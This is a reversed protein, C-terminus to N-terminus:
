AWPKGDAFDQRLKADFPQGPWNGDNFGFEGYDEFLMDGARIKKGVKGSVCTERPHRIEVADFTYDESQTENKPSKEDTILSVVNSHAGKHNVFTQLSLLSVYM